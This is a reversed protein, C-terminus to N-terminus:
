SSRKARKIRRRLTKVHWHKSDFKWAVSRSRQLVYSPDSTVHRDIFTRCHAQTGIPMRLTARLYKTFKNNVSRKHELHQAVIEFSFHQTLRVTENPVHLRSAGVERGGM